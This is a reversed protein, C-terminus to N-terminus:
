AKCVLYCLYDSEDLFEQDSSCGIKSLLISSSRYQYIPPHLNIEKLLENEDSEHMEM